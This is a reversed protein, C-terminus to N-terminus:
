LQGSTKIAAFRRKAADMADNDKTNESTIYITRAEGTRPDRATVALGSESFNLTMEIPSGAPTGPPLPLEVVGNNKITISFSSDYTEDAAKRFAEETFSELADGHISELTRIISEIDAIGPKVVQDEVESEYVRVRVMDQNDQMTQYEKTIESPAPAGVFLLNEVVLESGNSIQIGYTKNIKENVAISITSREGINSSLSTKLDELSVGTEALVDVGVEEAITEKIEAIIEETVEEDPNEELEKVKQILEQVKEEFATTAALAAGKAVAFDPQEFRVQGEGPFLEEIATKIMPMKTSGGVLLVTDVDEANVEADELLRRVFNLTKEVLDQTLAQFKEKSVELRTSDGSHRITFSKTPLPTSLGKKVNEVENRITQRLEADMDDISEDHEDAYLECIHDFLRSDWDIGGLRDDGDTKIVDITAKGTDDVAFDFLTIDFTGGGLDYVMIKRNEKFERSCFNLAAATPENVIKLVNLGAIEGAQRTARKEEDGFYAPCTIVVDTVAGEGHQDEVYEKMRKLILASTEIPDYTKGDFEYVHPNPKGIERKVFQVVREPEIEAQNKAEDGIVPPGGEPFYVASALLPSGSIYNEIIEPLDNDGLTAIASYTTGLDIGYVKKM